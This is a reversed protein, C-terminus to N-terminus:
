KNFLSNYYAFIRILDSKNEAELRYTRMYRKIEDGRNAMLTLMDAKKGTFTQVGSKDSLVFYKYVLEVRSFTGYGYFGTTNTRTELAERALLTLKGETLLEFFIPAKYAGQLAFPVSYFQRYRGTTADMIEYYVVKRATLSQLVGKMDLQIIDQDIAYKIKGRLTDGRELVVKGEHWYDFPWRQGFTQHQMMLLM